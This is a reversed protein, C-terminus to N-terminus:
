SVVCEIESDCRTCYNGYTLKKCKKNICKRYKRPKTHNNRLDMEIFCSILKNRMILEDNTFSRIHRIVDESFPLKHLIYEGLIKQKRLKELAESM